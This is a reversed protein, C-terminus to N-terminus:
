VPTEFFAQFASSAPVTTREFSMRYVPTIFNAECPQLSSWGTLRRQARHQACAVPNITYKKIWSVQIYKNNIINNTM